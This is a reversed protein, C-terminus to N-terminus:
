PWASIGGIFPVENEGPIYLVFPTIIGQSRALRDVDQESAGHAVVKDGEIAVWQNQYQKLEELHSVLWEIESRRLETGPTVSPRAAQVRAKALVDQLSPWDTLARRIEEGLSLKRSFAAGSRAVLDNEVLKAQEWGRLIRPM